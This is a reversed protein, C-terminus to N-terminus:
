KAAGLESCINKICERLHKHAPDADHRPHWAQSIPVHPVKVPLPFVHVRLLTIATHMLHGPVTAVLNSGAVAILAAYPSPVVLAVNRSLQQSALAEDIPGFEKGRRSVCVHNAKAFRKATVKGRSLSHGRRTAGVHQDNLLLQVKIEPGSLRIVGVDLDVIGDRLSALDEEGEAIFRLKVRPAKQLVRENITAAYAGAFAESTRITFTRKLSDLSTGGSTGALTRAEAVVAHVRARIELAKSTPVLRRGARVLIPDDLMRRIRLLSRSVAPVSLNLKEAAGTVSQEGLLVDLTHLLNFDISQMGLLYVKSAARKM